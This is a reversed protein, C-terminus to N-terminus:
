FALQTVTSVFLNAGELWNSFLQDTDRKPLSWGESRSDIQMLLSYLGAMCYPSFLMHLWRWKSGIVTRHPASGDWTLCYDASIRDLFPKFEAIWGLYESLLVQATDRIVRHPLLSEFFGAFYNWFPNFQRGELFRLYTSNWHLQSLTAMMRLMDSSLDRLLMAGLEQPSLEESLLCTDTDVMLTKGHQGQVFNELHGAHRLIGSNIAIRRTKALSQYIFGISRLLSIYQVDEIASTVFDSGTPSSDSDWAALSYVKPGLSSAPDPWEFVVAGTEDGNGDVVPRDAADRFRFAALPELGVQAAFLRQQCDFEREAGDARLSYLFKRRGPKTRLSLDEDMHLHYELHNRYPSKTQPQVLVYEGSPSRQLGILGKAKICGIDYKKFILSRGPTPQAISEVQFGKRASEVFAIL